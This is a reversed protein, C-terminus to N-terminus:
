GLVVAKQTILKNPILTRKGDDMAILTASSGCEIVIGSLEEFQVRQGPELQARVTRGALLDRVYDAGGIGTALGVALVVTTLLAALVM